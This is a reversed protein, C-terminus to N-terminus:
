RIPRDKDLEIAQEHAEALTAFPVGGEFWVRRRCAVRHAPADGCECPPMAPAPAAARAESVTLRLPLMRLLDEAFAAEDQATESDPAPDRGEAELMAAVSPFQKRAHETLPADAKVPHLEDVYRTAYANGHKGGAYKVSVCVRGNEADIFPDRDITGNRNLYHDHVVTGRESTVVAAALAADSQEDTMLEAEGTLLNHAKNLRSAAVGPFGAEASRRAGELLTRIVRSAGYLPGSMEVTEAIDDLLCTVASEYAIEINVRLEAIRGEAMWKMEAMTHAEGWYGEVERGSQVPAYFVFETGRDTKATVVKLGTEVHTRVTRGAEDKSMRFTIKSNTM